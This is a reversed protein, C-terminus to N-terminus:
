QVSHKTSFNDSIDVESPTMMNSNYCLKLVCMPVIRFIFVKETILEFCCNNNFLYNNRM